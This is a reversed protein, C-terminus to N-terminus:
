APCDTTRVEATTPANMVRVEGGTRWLVLEATTGTALRRGELEIGPQTYVYEASLPSGDPLVAIGDV